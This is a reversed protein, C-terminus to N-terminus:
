QDIEVSFVEPIRIPITSFSYILKLLTKQSM